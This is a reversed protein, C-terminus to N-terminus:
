LRHHDTPQTTAPVLTALPNPDTDAGAAPPIRLTKAWQFDHVVNGDHLVCRTLRRQTGLPVVGSLFPRVITTPFLTQSKSASPNAAFSGKVEPQSQFKVHRTVNHFM